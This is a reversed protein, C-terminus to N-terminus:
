QSCAISKVGKLSHTHAAKATQIVHNKIMSPSSLYTTQVLKTEQLDFVNIIYVDPWAYAYGIAKNSSEIVEFVGVYDLYWKLGLFLDFKDRLQLRYYKHFINDNDNDNPLVDALSTINDFEVQIVKPHLKPILSFNVLTDWIKKRYKKDFHVDIQYVGEKEALNTLLPSNALLLSKYQKEDYKISIFTLIAGIGEWAATNYLYSLEYTFALYIMIPVTVFLRFIVTIRFFSDIKHYSLYLYYVGMASAAIGSLTITVILQTEHVKDQKLNQTTSGFMQNIMTIPSIITVIGVLLATIGFLIMSLCSFKYSPGNNILSQIWKWKKLNMEM